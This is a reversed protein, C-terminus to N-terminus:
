SKPTASWKRDTWKAPARVRRSGAAVGPTSGSSTRSSQRTTFEAGCADATLSASALTPMIEGVLFQRRGCRTLLARALEDRSLIARRGEVHVRHGARTTNGRHDKRQRDCILSTRHWTSLM